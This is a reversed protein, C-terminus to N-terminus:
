HSMLCGFTAHLVSHAWGRFLSLLIQPEGLPLKSHSATSDPLSRGVNHVEQSLKRLGFLLGLLVFLPVQEQVYKRINRLFNIGGAGPYFLSTLSHWM